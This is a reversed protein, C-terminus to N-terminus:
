SNIKIKNYMREYLVINYIFYIRQIIKRGSSPM